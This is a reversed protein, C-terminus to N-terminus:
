VEGRIDVLASGYKAGCVYTPHDTRITDTMRAIQTSQM